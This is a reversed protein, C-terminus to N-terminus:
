RPQKVQIQSPEALPSAQRHFRWVLLLVVILFGILMVIPLPGTSQWRQWRKHHGSVAPTLRKSDGFLRM